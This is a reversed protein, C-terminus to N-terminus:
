EINLIYNGSADKPLKRINSVKYKKIIAGNEEIIVYEHKEPNSTGIPIGFLDTYGYALVPLLLTFTGDETKPM